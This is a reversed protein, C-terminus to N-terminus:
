IVFEFLVKEQHEETQILFGLVWAGPMNYRLGEIRYYGTQDMRTAVPSTPLGHGHMPMGGDVLINDPNAPAGARDQVQIHCDQFGDTGPPTKCSLTLQYSGQESTGSLEWRPPASEAYCGTLLSGLLLTMPLLLRSKM